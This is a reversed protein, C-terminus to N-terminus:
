FEGKANELKESLAETMIADTTAAMVLLSRYNARPDTSRMQSVETLADSSGKNASRLLAALYKHEDEDLYLTAYPPSNDM